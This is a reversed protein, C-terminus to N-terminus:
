LPNVLHESRLLSPAAGVSLIAQGLRFRVMWRRAIRDRDLDRDM